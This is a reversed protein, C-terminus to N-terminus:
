PPSLPTEASLPSVSLLCGSVDLTQLYTLRYIGKEISFLRGHGARLIAALTRQNIGLHDYAHEAMGADGSLVRMRYPECLSLLYHCFAYESDRYYIAIIGDDPREVEEEPDHTAIFARTERGHLEAVHLVLPNM